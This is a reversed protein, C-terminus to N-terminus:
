SFPGQRGFDDSPIGDLRAGPSKLASLRGSVARIWPMEFDQNLVIGVDAIGQFIAEDRQASDANSKLHFMIAPHYTFHPNKVPDLASPDSAIEYKIQVRNYANWLM